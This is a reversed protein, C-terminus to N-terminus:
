QACDDVCESDLCGLLENYASGADPFDGVCADVCEQDACPEICGAFDELQPATQYSVWTDCCSLKACAACAVDDASAQCLCEEGCSDLQCASVRGYVAGAVPFQSACDDVCAQDPCDAACPDFGDIDSAQLYEQLISCCDQRTCAGCAVEDAAPVCVACVNVANIQDDCGQVTVNQDQCSLSTSSQTLCEFYPGADDPCTATLADCRQVCEAQTVDGCADVIRQCAGDCTGLEGGSDPAAGGTAAAAGGSASGGTTAASGGSSSGGTSSTGAAPEGGAAPAGGLLAPGGAAGGSTGSGTGSSDHNTESASDSGCGAGVAATLTFFVATWCHTTM